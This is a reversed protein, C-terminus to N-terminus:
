VVDDAFASYVLYAWFWSGVGNPHVPDGAPVLVSLDPAQSFALHADIFGYGYRRALDRMLTAKAPVDFASNLPNQSMIIAPTEPLEDRLRDLLTEMQPRNDTLTANHGYSILVIDPEAALVGDAWRSGAFDDGKFGPVSANRLVINNPGTGTIGLDFPQYSSIDNQWFFYDVGHTLYDPQLLSVFRRPWETLNNATSDSLVLITVDRKNRQLESRIGATWPRAEAAFGIDYLKVGGATILHHDFVTSFAVQMTRNGVRIRRGASVNIQSGTAGSYRLTNDAVVAFRDRFLLGDLRASDAAAEAEDLIDEMVALYSSEELVSPLPAVLVWASGSWRYIGGGASSLAVVLRYDGTTNGSGPLDSVTAHFGAISASTVQAAIQDLVSVLDSKLPLYGTQVPNGFLAARPTPTTMPHEM